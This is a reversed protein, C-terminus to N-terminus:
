NLKNKTLKFSRQTIFLTLMILCFMSHSGGSNSSAPEPETPPIPEPTPEEPYLNSNDNILRMSKDTGGSDTLNGLTDEYHHWHGTQWDSITAPNTDLDQGTMDTTQINIALLATTEWNFGTPLTVNVQYSDTKYRM